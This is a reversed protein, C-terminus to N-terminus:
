RIKIKEINLLAMKECILDYLALATSGLDINTNKKEGLKIGYSNLISFFQKDSIDYFEKIAILKEHSLSNVALDIEKVKLLSIIESNIKEINNSQSIICFLLDGKRLDKINIGFTEIGKIIQRNASLYLLIEINKKNSINTNYYFAKQMYYCATFLHNENLLYENKVFQIISGKYTNQLSQTLEFLHYLADEENDIRFFTLFQSLNFNIQNIGVFYSLNIEKINFRKTIM